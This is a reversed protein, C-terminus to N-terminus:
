SCSLVGRAWVVVASSLSMHAASRPWRRREWSTTTAPSSDNTGTELTLLVVGVQERILSEDFQGKAFERPKKEGVSWSEADQAPSSSGSDGAHEREWEDVDKGVQRKLRETAAERRIAQYSLIATTTALSAVVATLAM